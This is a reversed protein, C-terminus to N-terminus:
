AFRFKVVSVYVSDVSKPNGATLSCYRCDNTGFAIRVCLWCAPLYVCWAVALSPTRPRRPPGSFTRSHISPRHSHITIELLSFMPRQYLTKHINYNYYYTVRIYRRIWSSQSLTSWVDSDICSIHMCRVIWRWCCLATWCTCMGPCGTCGRCAICCYVSSPYLEHLMSVDYKM